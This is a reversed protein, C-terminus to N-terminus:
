KRRVMLRFNAALSVLSFTLMVMALPFILMGISLITLLCFGALLLSTLLCVIWLPTANSAGATRGLLVCIGVAILTVAGWIANGLLLDSIGSGWSVLNLWGVTLVVPLVSFAIRLKLSGSVWPTRGDGQRVEEYAM